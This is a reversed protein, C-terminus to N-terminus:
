HLPRTSTQGQRKNIIKDKRWGSQQQPQIFSELDPDADEDSSYYEQEDTDYVEEEDGYKEDDYDSYEREVDDEYIQQM